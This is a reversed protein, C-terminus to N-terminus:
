GRTPAESRRRLAFGLGALALGLLVTTILGLGTFPLDGEVQVPRPAPPAAEREGEEEEVAAAAPEEYQDQAPSAAVVTPESAVASKAAEVADKTATAAHGLGGFSAFVGLMLVTLSAAYSLRSLRYLGADRSERRVHDALTEVFRRPAEPRATRLENELDFTEGRRKWFRKM